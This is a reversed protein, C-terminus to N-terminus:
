GEAIETIVEFADEVGEDDLNGKGSSELAAHYAARNFKLVYFSDDCAIIV